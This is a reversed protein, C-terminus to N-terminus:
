LKRSYDTTHVQSTEVELEMASTFVRAAGIM